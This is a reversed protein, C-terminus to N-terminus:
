AAERGAQMAGHRAILAGEARGEDKVRAFLEGRDPWLERSRQLSSAKDATVRQAKKWVGPAVHHVPIGRAGLAGLIAGYGEAFKWLAPKGWRPDPGVKEVWAATITDPSWADILDAIAAGLASGTFPPMDEVGYLHYSETGLFALAGKQGPDIGLILGTM